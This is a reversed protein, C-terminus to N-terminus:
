CTEGRNSLPVILVGARAGRCARIRCRPLGDLSGEDSLSLIHIRGFSVLNLRSRSFSSYLPLSGDETGYYRSMLERPLPPPPPRHRFRHIQFPPLQATPFQAIPQSTSNTSGATPNASGSTSNGSGLSLNLVGPTPYFEPPPTPPQSPIPM